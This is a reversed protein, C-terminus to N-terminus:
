HGRLKDRLDVFQPDELVPDATVNMRINMLNFFGEDIEYNAIKVIAAELEEVARAHDGVALATMARGGSGIEVGSAGQEIEAAIRQADAVRGIRSYEYALEPLFVL